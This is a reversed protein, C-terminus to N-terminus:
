RRKVKRHQPTESLSFVVLEEGTVTSIDYHLSVTAVGTAAEVIAELMPRASEILHSRVQKILNRGENPLRSHALHKEAPTLVRTMRVVLLDGLLQAHINSPGRGMFEQEFRGFERAVSAEIEGLTKLAEGCECRAESEAAPGATAPQCWASQKLM